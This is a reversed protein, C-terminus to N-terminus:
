IAGMSRYTNEGTEDFEIGFQLALAATTAVAAQHTPPRGYSQRLLSESAGNGEVLAMGRAEAM